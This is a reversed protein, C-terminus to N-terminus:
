DLLSALVCAISAASAACLLHDVIRLFTLSRERHQQAKEAAQDWSAPVAAYRNWTCLM